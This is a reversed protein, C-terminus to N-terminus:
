RKRSFKTEFARCKFTLKERGSYRCIAIVTTLDIADKSQDLVNRVTGYNVEIDNSENIADTLQNINLKSRNLADNLRQKIAQIQEHKNSKQM